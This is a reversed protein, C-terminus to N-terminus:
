KLSEYNEEPNQFNQIIRIIKLIDNEVIYILTNHRTVLIKHYKTNEYKQFVINGECIIQIIEDLKILFDSLVTDNWTNLLYEEVNQLDSLSEDSFKIKM